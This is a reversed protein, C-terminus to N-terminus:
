SASETTRAPRVLFRALPKVTAVRKLWYLAGLFLLSLVLLSAQGNTSRYQAGVPTVFVFLALVGVVIITILRAQTRAGARSAEIDRRARVEESVDAAIGALAERLGAGEHQTAQILATAVFDGVQNDVDDAFAYLADTLPRRAHIRSILMDIQPRIEDPCSARTAIIAGSIGQGAGIVSSLSRVWEEIAELQEPTTGRDVRMLWPMAVAFIPVLVLAIVWGFLALVLGILLGILFNRRDVPSFSSSQARRRRPQSAAAPPRTLGAVVLTLGLALGEAAMIALGTM